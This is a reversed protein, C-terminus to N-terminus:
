LKLTDFVRNILRDIAVGVNHIDTLEIDYDDHELELAISIVGTSLEEITFMGGRAIIKLAKEAVKQSRNFNIQKTEGNPRIYETFPIPASAGKSICAVCAEDHADNPCICQNM